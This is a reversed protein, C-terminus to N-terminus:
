AAAKPGGTNVPPDTKLLLQRNAHLASAIGRTEHEMATLERLAEAELHVPLLHWYCGRGTWKVATRLRQEAKLRASRLKTEHGCEVLIDGIKRIRAKISNAMPQSITGRAYGDGNAVFQKLSAVEVYLPKVVAEIATQVAAAAAQAAIEAVYRGLSEMDFMPQPSPPAVPTSAEFFHRYLVDAAERQYLALKARLRMAIKGESITFLWGAVSRINLCVQERMRGDTAVVPFIGTTAWKSKRLKRAQDWADRINFQACLSAFVVWHEGDATSLLDLEDGHFSFRETTTTINSSM